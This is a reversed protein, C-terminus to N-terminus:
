YETVVHLTVTARTNGSVYISYTHGAQLTAPISILASSSGSTYLSFSTAPDVDMYTSATKYALNSVLKAGGAAAFDINSPLASSLNIFRVRAKGSQPVSREDQFSTYSNGETYFVSYSKGATLALTFTVNVTATGSNKFRAQYNGPAANLFASGSGYAVASTTLRTSDLYFDQPLSAESSNVVQVFAPLNNNSGDKMCSTMAVALMVFALLSLSLSRLKKSDSITKMTHNTKM